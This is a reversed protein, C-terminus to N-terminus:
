AKGEEKLLAEIEEADSEIAAVAINASAREFENGSQNYKVEIRAAKERLREALARLAARLAVDNM